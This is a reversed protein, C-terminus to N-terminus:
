VARGEPPGSCALAVLTAEGKADLKRAAGPRPADYLTRALREGAPAEAFRRRTRAATAVSAHLAAAM